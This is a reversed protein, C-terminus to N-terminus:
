GELTRAVVNAITLLIDYEISKIENSRYAEGLIGLLEKHSKAAKMREIYSEM